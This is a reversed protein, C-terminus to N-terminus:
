YVDSVYRETKIGALWKEAAERSDGTREMKIKMCVEATSKGLRAASGCLFIKGGSKFLEAAEDADEYLREHIYQGKPQMRSFAPRVDVIGKKEWEELEEKYIYDKESDRCGFYLLAKGLKKVGAQAIAAREQLFARMPAIGTGAALMIIPTEPPPMRFGVNTARVFCLIREGVCRSALYTSCVGHFNGHGSLAPVDLIDYTISVTDPRQLPSSFISYQRPTLAPLFDLFQGFPLNVPHDSLIDMLSYRKELLEDYRQILDKYDAEHEKDALGAVNELQRKTIPSTLEVASLLVEGVPTPESPLFKKSSNKVTIHDHASLGFYSLVRRVSDAHNRPQIVLYDGAVYQMGDPLRVDMQMKALGISTDALQVNSVVTGQTIEEGVLTCDIESPLIECEVATKPASKPGSSGLAEHIADCIHDSWEEWPGILDAKVNSSGMDCIRTAGGAQLKEDVLEPIRLFTSAWDSNGVGFVAYKVDKFPQSSSDLRELWTTFKRCFDLFFV